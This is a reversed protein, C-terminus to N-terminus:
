LSIYIIKKGKSEMNSIDQKRKGEMDSRNDSGPTERRIDGASFEEGTRGEISSIFEEILTDRRDIYTEDRRDNGPIFVVNSVYYYKNSDLGWASFYVYFGNAVASANSTNAEFLTIRGDNKSRFNIERSFAGLAGRENSFMDSVDSDASAMVPGFGLVMGMLLLGLFGVIKIKKIKM